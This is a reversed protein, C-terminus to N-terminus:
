KKLLELTTALIEKAEPHGEAEMKKVWEQWIPEGAVKSWRALEEPPLTYRVTEYKGKKIDDMVAPEADDFVAKGLAKGGEIGSVSMIAEQVDKPLRNWMQKNMDLTFYVAAMPVITYYKAVEYLRFGDIAEWPLAAGDIVGKDLADYVDPMPVLLPVGGMAKIQDTPPGGTVRIKMGKLDDMTKVQKKRTLLVYSSSTWYMLPQVDSFEKQLVPYKAILKGLVESGQAATTFPLFPLTIVDALPTMGPWYGHFCWGIDTIGSKVARWMDPGKVLTQSPYIQIKVGGKTAEEVRKAWPAIGNKEYLSNPSNQDALRLTIQQAWSPASLALLGAVLGAGLKFSKIM